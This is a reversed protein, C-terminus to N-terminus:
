IKLKEALEKEREWNEFDTETIPFDGKREFRKMRLFALEQMENDGKEVGDEYMEELKENIEQEIKNGKEQDAKKIEEIAKSVFDLEDKKKVEEILKDVHDDKESESEENKEREENDSDEDQKIIEFIDNVQEEEKIKNRADKVEEIKPVPKPIYKPCDYEKGQKIADLEANLWDLRQVIKKDKEDLEADEIELHKKQVGIEKKRKWINNRMQVSRKQDEELEKIRSRQREVRKREADDEKDLKSLEALLIRRREDRLKAANSLYSKPDSM